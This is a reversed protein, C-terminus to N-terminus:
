LTKQCQNKHRKNRHHQFHLNRCPTPPDAWHSGGQRARHLHPRRSQLLAGQIGQARHIEQLTQWDAELAPQSLEPLAVDTGTTLLTSFSKIKPWVAASCPAERQVAKPLQQGWKPVQGTTRCHFGRPSCLGTGLVINYKIFNHWVLWFLWGKM